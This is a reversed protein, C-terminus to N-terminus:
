PWLGFDKIGQAVMGAVVQAGEHTFHTNDPTTAGMKTTVYYPESAEPGLSELWQFTLENIDILKTDTEKAVDRTAQAYETISHVAHGGSDFRRASTSTCLVPIGGKALVDNVMRKLNPQFNGVIIGSGEPYEEKSSGDLEARKEASTSGDNIGFQIIVIDNEIIQSCLTEWNGGVIFSKTSKGGVAHNIVQANDGLAEAFYQGWGARPAEHEYNKRCTSDGALLFKAVRGPVPPNDASSIWILPWYGVGCSSNTKSYKHFFYLTAAEDIEGLDEKTVDITLWYKAWADSYVNADVRNEDVSGNAVETPTLEKIIRASTKGKVKTILAICYTPILGGNPAGYFKLTGPRNIKFSFCRNAPIVDPYEKSWEKVRETTMRTGYFLIGPGWYTIKKSVAATDFTVKSVVGYKKLEDKDFIGTLAEGPALNYDFSLTDNPWEFIDAAIDSGSDDPWLEEQTQGAPTSNDETNEEKSGCSIMAAAALISILFAKFKM